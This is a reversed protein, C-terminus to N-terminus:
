GQEPESMILCGTDSRNDKRSFYITCGSQKAALLTIDLTLRFAYPGLNKNLTVGYNRQRTDTFATMYQVWVHYGKKWPYDAALTLATIGNKPM